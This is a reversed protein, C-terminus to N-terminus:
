WERGRGEGRGRRVKAVAGVEYMGREGYVCIWLKRVVYSWYKVKGGM